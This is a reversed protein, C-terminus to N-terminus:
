YQRRPAPAGKDRAINVRVRHGRLDMGDVFDVAEQVHEVPLKFFGFGRSQGTGQDRILELDSVPGYPAFLAAVEAEDADLPLSGVYLERLGSM